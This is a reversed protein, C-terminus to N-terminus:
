RQGFRFFGRMRNRPAAKLSQLRAPLFNNTAGLYNEIYIRQNNHFYKVLFHHALFIWTTFALVINRVM